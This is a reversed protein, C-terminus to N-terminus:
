RGDPSRSGRRFKYSRGSRAPRNQLTTAHCPSRRPAGTSAPGQFSRGCTFFQNHRERADAALLRGQAWAWPRDAKRSELPGFRKRASGPGLDRPGHGVQGLTELCCAQPDTSHTRRTQARRGASRRTRRSSLRCNVSDFSSADGPLLRGILGPQGADCVNDGTPDHTSPRCARESRSLLVGRRGVGDGLPARHMALCKGGARGVAALGPGHRDASVLRGSM